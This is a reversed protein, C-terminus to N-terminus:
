RRPLCVFQKEGKLPSPLPTLFHLEKIKTVSGGGRDGGLAPLVLKDAEQPGESLRRFTKCAKQAKKIIMKEALLCVAEGEKPSVPSPYFYM